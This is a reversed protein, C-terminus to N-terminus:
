RWSRLQVRDTRTRLFRGLSHSASIAAAAAGAPDSAATLGSAGAATLGSAGATVV